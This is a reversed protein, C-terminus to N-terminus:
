EYGKLDDDLDDAVAGLLEKTLKVMSTTYQAMYKVRMKGAATEIQESPNKKNYILLPLDKIAELQAFLEAVKRMLEDYAELKTPDAGGKTFIDKLRNYENEAITKKDM